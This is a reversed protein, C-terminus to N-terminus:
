TLLLNMQWVDNRALKILDTEEIVKLKNNISLMLFFHYGVIVEHPNIAM